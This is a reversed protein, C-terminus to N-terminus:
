AQEVGVDADRNRIRGAGVVLRHGIHGDGSARDRDYWHHRAGGPDRHGGGHGRRRADFLQEARDLASGRLFTSVNTATTLLGVDGHAEM